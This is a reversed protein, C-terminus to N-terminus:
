TKLVDHDLNPQPRTPPAEGGGMLCHRWVELSVLEQNEEPPHTTLPHSLPPSSGGFYCEDAGNTDCFIKELPPPAGM